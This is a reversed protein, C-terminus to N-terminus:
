GLKIRVPYTRSLQIPRLRFWLFSHITEDRQLSRHSGPRWDNTPDTCWSGAAQCGSSPPTQCRGRPLRSLGGAAVYVWSIRWSTRLEWGGSWWCALEWVSEWTPACQPPRHTWFHLVSQNRPQNMKWMIIDHRRLRRQKTLNATWSEFSIWNMMNLCLAPVMLHTAYKKFHSLHNRDFINALLKGEVSWSIVDRSAEPSHKFQLNYFMFKEYKIIQMNSSELIDLRHAPKMVVCSSSFKSDSCESKLLYQIGKVHNEFRADRALSSPRTLSSM